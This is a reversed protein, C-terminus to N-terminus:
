QCRDEEGVGSSGDYNLVDDDSAIFFDSLIGM